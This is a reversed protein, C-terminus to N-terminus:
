TMTEGEPPPSRTQFASKIEPKSLVVLGWIGVPMGLICCCNVFNVMALVTGAVAFGYSRLRLMRLAAIIVLISVVAFVAGLILPEPGTAHERLEEFINQPPQVPAPPPFRIRVAVYATQAVDALLGLIGTLLL